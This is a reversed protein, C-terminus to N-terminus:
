IRGAPQAEAGLPGGPISGGVVTIFASLLWALSRSGPRCTSHTTLRVGRTRIAGPHATFTWRGTPCTVTSREVSAQEAKELWYTMGMERYMTTATTLHGRLFGNLSAANLTKSTRELMGIRYVKESPQADVALPALLLNLTIVIALGILQM